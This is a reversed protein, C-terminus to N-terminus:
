KAENYEGNIITKVEPSILAPDISVARHRMVDRLAAKEESTKAQLYQLRLNDLDRASGDRFSKTQEFIERHANEYKVGWFQLNWLGLANGGISFAIMVVIFIVFVVLGQLFESM